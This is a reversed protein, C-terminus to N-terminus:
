FRKRYNSKGKPKLVKKSDKKPIMNEKKKIKMQKKELAALELNIKNPTLTFITSGQKRTPNSNYSIKFTPLPSIDAFHVTLGIASDVNLCIKQKSTNNNNPM